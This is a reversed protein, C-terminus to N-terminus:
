QSEITDADAIKDFLAWKDPPKAEAYPTTFNGYIKSLIAYAKWCSVGVM